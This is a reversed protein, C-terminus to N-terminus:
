RVNYQDINQDFLFCTFEPAVLNYRQQRSSITSSRSAQTAQFILFSYLTPKPAIQQATLSAYASSFGMSTELDRTMQEISYAIQQTSESLLTQINQANVQQVGECGALIESVVSFLTQKVTMTNM